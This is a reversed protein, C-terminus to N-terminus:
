GALIGAIADPLGGLDGGYLMAMTQAGAGLAYVQAALVAPDREPAVWGGAQLARVFGAIEDVWDRYLATLQARVDDRHGAKFWFEAIVPTWSTGGVSAALAQLTAAVVDRIPTAPDLRQPVTTWDARQVQGHRLAQLFLDEKDRYHFYLAGITVGAEAAVDVNRTAAYGRQRFLRIAAEILATRTALRRAAQTAM